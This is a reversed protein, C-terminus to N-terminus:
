PRPNLGTDPEVSLVSDTQSEREWQEKQKHKSARKFLYTFRECDLPKTQGASHITETLFSYNLTLSCSRGM